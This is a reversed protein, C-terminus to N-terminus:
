IIIIYVDSSECVSGIIGQESGHTFDDEEKCYEPYLMEVMKHISEESHRRLGGSRRCPASPDSINTVKDTAWLELRLSRVYSSDEKDHSLFVKFHTSMLFMENYSLNALRPDMKIMLYSSIDVGVELKLLWRKEVGCMVLSLQVSEKGDLFIGSLNLDHGLECRLVGVLSVGGSEVGVPTIGGWVVGVSSSRDEKDGERSQLIQYYVKSKFFLYPHVIPWLFYNNEDSVPGPVTHLSSLVNSSLLAPPLPEAPKILLQKRGKRRVAKISQRGGSVPLPTSSSSDGSGEPQSSSEKWSRKRKRGAM